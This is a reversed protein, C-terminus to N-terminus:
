VKYDVKGTHTSVSVLKEETATDTTDLENLGTTLNKSASTTEDDSAFENQNTQKQQQSQQETGSNHENFSFM